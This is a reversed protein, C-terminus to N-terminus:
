LGRADLIERILADHKEPTDLHVFRPDKSANEIRHDVTGYWQGDQFFVQAYSYHSPQVVEFHTVMNGWGHIRHQGDTHWPKPSKSWVGSLRDQLDPSVVYDYYEAM